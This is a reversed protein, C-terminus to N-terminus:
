NICSPYAASNNLNAPLNDAFSVTFTVLLWNKKLNTYKYFFVYDSRFIYLVNHNWLLLYLRGDHFDNMKLNISSLHSDLLNCMSACLHPIPPPPPPIDTQSSINTTYNYYLQIEIHENLEFGRLILRYQLHLEKTGSEVLLIFIYLLEYMTYYCRSSQLNVMWHARHVYNKCITRSYFWRKFKSKNLASRTSYWKLRIWNLEIEDICVHVCACVRVHM